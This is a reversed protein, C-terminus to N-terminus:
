CKPWGFSTHRHYSFCHGIAASCNRQGDCPGWPTTNDLYCAAQFFALDCDSGVYNAWARWYWHSYNVQNGYPGNYDLCRIADGPGPGAQPAASHHHNRKETLSYRLKVTCRDNEWTVELPLNTIEQDGAFVRPTIHSAIGQLQFKGAEDTVAQHDGFRITLNSGPGFQEMGDTVHLWGHQMAATMVDPPISDMEAQTIPSFKSVLVTGEGLKPNLPTERQGDQSCSVILLGSSVVLLLRSASKFM